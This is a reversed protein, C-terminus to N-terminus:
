PREAMSRTTNIAGNYSGIGLTAASAKVWISAPTTMPTGPLAKLIIWSDSPTLNFSIPIGTSGFSVEFSDAAVKGAMATYSLQM